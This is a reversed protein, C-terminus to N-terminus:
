TSISYSVKSEKENSSTDRPSVQVGNREPIRSFVLGSLESPDLIREQRTLSVGLRKATKLLLSKCRQQDPCVKCKGLNHQYWVQLGGEPSLAIIAETQFDRSWGILVGDSANLYKPEIRNLTAADSLATTVRTPITEIMKNIAQRSVNLKRAIESQSLGTRMMDWASLQRSTLYRSHLGTM